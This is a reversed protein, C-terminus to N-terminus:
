VRPDGDDTEEYDDEMAREAELLADLWRSATDNDIPTGCARCLLPTDITAPFGPCDRTEKQEPYVHVTIEAECAENPCIATQATSRPRRAKRLRTM